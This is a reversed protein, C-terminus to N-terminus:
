AEDKGRAAHGPLPAPAKILVRLIRQDEVAEVTVRLGAIDVEDGIEPVRGAAEYVLGALTESDGAPLPLGLVEQLDELDIKPDVRLTESGLWEYLREGEDFEDEIEGVIEELVDEMTVLGATGGYEDIVIAMHIRSRRFEALVEDIKKSEPIFYAPRLLDGIVKGHTVLRGEEVLALLDKAYLLGSIHDISGEYVPLRSHRAENVAAVAAEIPDAADLAVMDIRPVMIERVTTDHFGFISHIMEREEDELSVSGQEEHLLSRIEGTSLQPPGDEATAPDGGRAAAWLLLASWPRLLWHLPLLLPGLWRAYALPSRAAAAKCILGGGFWLLVVVAAAVALVRAPGLRPMAGAVIQAWAASGAVTVALFVTNVTIAFRRPRALYEALVRGTGAAELLGHRHLNSVKAFATWLGATLAAAALAAAATIWVAPGTPLAAAAVSM